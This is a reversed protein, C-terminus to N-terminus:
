AGVQQGPRLGGIQTLHLRNGEPDWFHLAAHGMSNAPMLEGDFEVRAAALRRQMAVIDEVEFGFHHLGTHKRQRMEPWIPAPDTYCILELVEAQSGRLMAVQGGRNHPRIVDLTLGIVDRYFRLMTEFDVCSIGVHFVRQVMGSLRVAGTTARL